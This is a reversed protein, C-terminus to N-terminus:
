GPGPGVGPQTPPPPLPPASPNNCVGPQVGGPQTPPCDAQAMGAGFSAVSVVLAAGAIFKAIM